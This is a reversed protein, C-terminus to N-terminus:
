NNTSLTATDTTITGSTSISPSSTSTTYWTNPQPWNPIIWPNTTGPNTIITQNEIEEEKLLLLAEELTLSTEKILRSLITVKQAHLPTTEM